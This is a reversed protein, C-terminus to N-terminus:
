PPTVRRLMTATIQTIQFDYYINNAIYDLIVIKIHLDYSLCRISDKSAVAIRSDNNKGLLTYIISVLFTSRVEAHMPFDPTLPM